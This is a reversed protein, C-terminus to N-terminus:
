IYRENMSGDIPGRDTCLSPPTSALLFTIPLGASSGSPPVYANQYEHSQCKYLQYNIYRQITSVSTGGVHPARKGTVNCWNVGLVGSYWM